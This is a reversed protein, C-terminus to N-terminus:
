FEGADETVLIDDSVDGVATLAGQCREAVVGGGNGPDLLAGDGVVAGSGVQETEKREM